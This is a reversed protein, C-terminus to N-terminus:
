KGPEVTSANCDPWNGQTATSRRPSRTCFTTQSGRRRSRRKISSRWSAAFAPAAFSTGGAVEPDTVCTYGAPLIDSECYTLLSNFAGAAAFLSVDPLDRVNDSPTGPLISQWSPKAYSGTCSSEDNPNAPAICNSQGGGGGQFNGYETEKPDLCLAENTSDSVGLANLYALIEPNDCSDNWPSERIYTTASALTTPDNTSNWGQGPATAFTKFDTGGVAVDYPTSAVGSVNLGTVEYPDVTTDAADCTSPGDDGAAVVVYNGGYSGAGM